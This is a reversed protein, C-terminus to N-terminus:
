MCYIDETLDRFWPPRSVAVYILLLALIPIPIILDVVALLVLYLIVTNRM